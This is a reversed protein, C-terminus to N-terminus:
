VITLVSYTGISDAGERIESITVESESYMGQPQLWKYLNFNKTM